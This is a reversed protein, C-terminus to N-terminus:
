IGIAAIRLEEALWLMQEPRIRSKRIVPEGDHRFGIIVVEQWDMKAAAALAQEPTWSESPPMEAPASSDKAPDNAM